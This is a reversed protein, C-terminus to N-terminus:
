IKHPNFLSEHFLLFKRLLFYPVKGTYSCTAVCGSVVTLLVIHENTVSHVLM